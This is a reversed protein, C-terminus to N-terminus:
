KMEALKDQPVANPPADQSLQLARVYAVIAWRDEVPIQHGHPPMNRIGNTITNFIHGETRSRVTESTLNAAQVWKDGLEMARDNVMGHGSGDYGHCPTCYINFQTQGRALLAENVKIQKPFGKFFTVSPKTAANSAAPAITFGRYYFDDNDLDEQAVTGAIKPRDARGDAFVESTHQAKYKPQNGMDQALSIRPEESTSVRRRAAVVLPIWSLVVAILFVAIMWFPPRKLRLDALPNEVIEEPRTM